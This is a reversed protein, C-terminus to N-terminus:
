SIYFSKRQQGGFNRCHLSSAPFQQLETMAWLHMSSPEFNGVNVSGNALM